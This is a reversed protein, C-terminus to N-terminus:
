PALQPALQPTLQPALQPALKIALQPALEPALLLGGRGGGIRGILRSAPRIPIYRLNPPHAWVPFEKPEQGHTIDLSPNKKLNTRREANRARGKGYAFHFFFNM